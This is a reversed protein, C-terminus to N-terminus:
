GTPRDMRKVLPEGVKVRDLQAWFQWGFLTFRQQVLPFLLFM